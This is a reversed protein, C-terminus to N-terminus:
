GDKGAERDLWAFRIGATAGAAALAFPLAATGLGPWGLGLGFAVTVGIMLVVFAPGLARARMVRTLEDELYKRNKRSHNDWGMIIMTILWAYGVPLWLRFYDGFEGRGNLVDRTPELALGLLLLTVVPFTWLQSARQAQMRERKRAGGSEGALLDVQRDVWVKVLGAFAIAIGGGALLGWNRAVDGVADAGGVFGAATAAVGVGVTLLGLWSLKWPKRELGAM